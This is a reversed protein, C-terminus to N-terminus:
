EIFQYNLYIHIGTCEKQHLLVNAIDNDSKKESVVVQIPQNQYIENIKNLYKDKLTAMMYHKNTIDVSHEMDFFWFIEGILISSGVKILVSNIPKNESYIGLSLIESIHVLKKQPDYYLQGKSAHVNNNLSRSLQIGYFDLESLYKRPYPYHIDRLYRLVHKFIGPDRDLFIEKLDDTEYKFLSKFYISKELTSYTTEFRTGGVNLIVRSMPKLNKKNIRRRM